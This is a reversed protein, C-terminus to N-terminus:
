LPEEAVETKQANWFIKAKDAENNPVVELGFAIERAEEETEAAITLYISVTFNKV